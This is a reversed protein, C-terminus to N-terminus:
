EHDRSWRSRASAETMSCSRGPDCGTAHEGWTGSTCNRCPGARLVRGIADAGLLSPNLYDHCPARLRNRPEHADEYCVQSDLM